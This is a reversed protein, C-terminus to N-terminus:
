FWRTRITSPPKRRLNLSVACWQQAFDEWVIQSSFAHFIKQGFLQL